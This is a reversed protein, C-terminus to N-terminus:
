SLEELLPFIKVKCLFILLIIALACVLVEQITSYLITNLGFIVRIVASEDTQLINQVYILYKRFGRLYYEVFLEV